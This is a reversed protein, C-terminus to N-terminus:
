SGRGEGDLATTVAPLLLAQARCARRLDGLHVSEDIGHARSDPDEIGAMLVPIPGQRAVLPELFPITGGVGAFTTPAGYGGELASAAAQVVPNDADVVFPSAAAGLTVTARLGLPAQAELWDRLLRQAREPSQGPALRVSVRARARPQLANAAGAVAPADIGTVTLHPRRWLRELPHAQPEGALPVEPRLGTEARFAAEDFPLAELTARESAGLPAIDEGFGPIAVAGHGDVCSALLQALASVVDPVPGGYLGSHLAHDTAAVEVTADVLGRLSTTLTPQGVQWNLTDVVVVADAALRDAQARLLADFHPSGVEEEGEVLLTVHCPPAGRARQWAELAALHTIVGAKDDAAGRGYLRDHRETATFPASTWADVDGPPQVDHHAYLLLTPAEPRTTRATALVAPPADGVELLEVADMGASRALRATAEASRRLAAPDGDAGSVGPIAVLDTLARQQWDAGAEVAAVVDAHERALHEAEM